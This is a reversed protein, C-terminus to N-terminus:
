LLGKNRAALVADTKGSVGLKKYNQKCHYKVTQANIGLAEAIDNISYGKAQLRLVELANGSFDPIDAVNDKLYVPYKRAINKAEELLGAFWEGDTKIKFSDDKKLQEILESVAAGQESIFRIFGISEASILCNNMHRKWDDNGMRYKIVATYLDVNMRIYLRDCGDAYIRLKELLSYAKLYDGRAIYCRVKTMYRYREMINFESDEDPAETLWRDVAATDNRYLAIRCRLARINPLLQKIKKEAIRKEFVSIIEDAAEENGHILNIRAQLAVSVFFIEDAGDAETQLQCRSLISLIEYFDGGKEYLSEALAAETLGKGQRGLLKEIMKGKGAIFERDHVTLMCFDKGGNIVSPMNSTVSFEPIPINQELLSYAKTLIETINGSGRHALSVDLYALRSVAERYEGGKASKAFEKLKNYWYESEEKKMLIGYLMSMGSMLIPDGDIDSEAMGLYYNRLEYYYGVGPNQRANQILLERIRSVYGSRGYMELAPVVEGRAEFYMGASYTYERMRAEGFVRNARRRLADLVIPMFTYTSGSRYLFNGIECAKKLITATNRNHTIYEALKEDFEKAISVQMLFETIDTDWQAIINNETYDLFREYIEATMSDDIARGEKLMRLVHCIVYANGDAKKVIFDLEAESIVVNCSAFFREIEGRDIYLDSEEIIIFGSKIYLPFLWEPVSCRSLMFLRIDQRKALEIVRQRRPTDRLMSLDDLVIIKPNKGDTEETKEPFGGEACSYYSYKRKGLFRRILETKGYTAAGYIYVPQM